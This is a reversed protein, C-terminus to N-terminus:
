HIVAHALSDPLDQHECPFIASDFCLLEVYVDVLFHLGAVLICLCVIVLWTNCFFDHFM